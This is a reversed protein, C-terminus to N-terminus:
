TNNDIFSYSFAFFPTYDLGNPQNPLQSRYGCKCLLPDRVRHTTAEEEEENTM